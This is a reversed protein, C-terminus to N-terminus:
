KRNGGWPFSFQTHLGLFQWSQSSRDSTQSFYEYAVSVDLSNEQKQLLDVSFSYGTGFGFNVGGTQSPLFLLLGETIGLEFPDIGALREHIKASVYPEPNPQLIVHMSDPFNLQPQAQLGVEFNIRVEPLVRYSIATGFSMLGQSLNNVSNAPPAQYAAYEYNGFIESSFRPSWNQIWGARVGWFQTSLLSVNQGYISNADIRSYGIRPSIEFESFPFFEPLGKRPLPSEELHNQPVTAPVNVPVDVPVTVPVTGLAESNSNEKNRNTLADNSSQVTRRYINSDDGTYASPEKAPERPPALEVESDTSKLTSAVLDPQSTRVTAITRDGEQPRKVFSTFLGWSLLTFFFAVTAVGIIKKMRRGKLMRIWVAYYTMMWLGGIPDCSFTFYGYGIKIKLAYFVNTFYCFRSKSKSKGEVM